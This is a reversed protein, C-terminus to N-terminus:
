LITGHKPVKPFTSMGSHATCSQPNLAQPKSKSNPLKYPGADATARAIALETTTGCTTTVATAFATAVVVMAAIVTSYVSRFHSGAMQMKFVM